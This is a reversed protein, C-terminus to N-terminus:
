MIYQFPESVMVVVTPTFNLTSLLVLSTMWVILTYGMLSAIYMVTLHSVYVAV